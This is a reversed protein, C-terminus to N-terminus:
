LHVFWFFILFCQGLHLRTALQSMLIRDDVIGSTGLTGCVGCKRRLIGLSANLARPFQNLMARLSGMLHAGKALFPHNNRLELRARHVVSSLGNLKSKLRSDSVPRVWRRSPAVVRGNQVSIVSTEVVSVSPDMVARTVPNEM